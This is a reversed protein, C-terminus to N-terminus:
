VSTLTVQWYALVFCYLVIVLVLITILPSKKEPIIVWLGGVMPLLIYRYKYSTKEFCFLFFLFFFLSLRAGLGYRNISKINM